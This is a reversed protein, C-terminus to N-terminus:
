GGLEIQASTVKRYIDMLPGRCNKVADFHEEVIRRGDEAIRRRRDVDGLLEVVLDALKGCDRGEIFAERVSGASFDLVERVGGAPIFGCIPTGLAFCELMTTPLEESKSTMVFLDMKAIAEQGNCVGKEGANLFEVNWREGVGKVKVMKEVRHFASWDKEDVNRGVMGVVFNSSQRITQNNLEGIGLGQDGIGLRIPNFFVEGRAEPHWRQFGEWTAGSVPLWYDVLRGRVCDIIRGLFSGRGTPMHLSEIVSARGKLGFRLAVMVLIPMVHAHIVDPRFDELVRCFRGVIRWDHGSRGKLRYVRLGEDEFMRIVSADSEVNFVVATDAVGRLSQMLCLVHRQLGGMLAENVIYLVKM